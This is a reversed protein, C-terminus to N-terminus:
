RAYEKAVCVVHASIKPHYETPVSEFRSRLLDAMRDCFADSDFPKPTVEAQSAIAEKLAKEPKESVMAVAVTEELKQKDPIAKVLKEALTVTVRDANVAETLQKCGTNIVNAAKSVTRGTVNYQKAAEDRARSGEIPEPFTEVVSKAKDSKRDGGSARQREKAESQCHPLFAAAMMARQSPSCDRHLTKSRVFAYPNGDHEALEDDRIYHADIGLEDCAQQRHRGDIIKGKYLTIPDILGHKAIDEKLRAFEEAKMPPPIMAAPHIANKAM